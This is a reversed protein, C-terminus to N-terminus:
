RGPESKGDGDWAEKKGRHHVIRRKFSHPPLGKMRKASGGLSGSDAFRRGCERKDEGGRGV